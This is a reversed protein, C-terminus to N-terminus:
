LARTMLAQVPIMGFVGFHFMSRLMITLLQEASVVLQIEKGKKKMATTHM